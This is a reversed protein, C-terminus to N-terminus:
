FNVVVVIGIEFIFGFILDSYFHFFNLLFSCLDVNRYNQFLKDFSRVYNILNISFWYWEIPKQCGIHSTCQWFTFLKCLNEVKDQFLESLFIEFQVSELFQCYLRWFFTYLFEVLLIHSKYLLDLSFPLYFCVLLCIFFCPLPIHCLCNCLM